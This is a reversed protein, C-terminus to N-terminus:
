MIRNDLDPPQGLDLRGEAPLNFLFYPQRISASLARKKQLQPRYEAVTIERQAASHPVKLFFPKRNYAFYLSPFCFHIVAVSSILAGDFRALSYHVNQVHQSETQRKTAKCWQLQLYKWYFVFLWVFLFIQKTRKISGSHISLVGMFHFQVHITTITM